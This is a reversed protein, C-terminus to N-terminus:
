HTMRPRRRWSNRRAKERSSGSPGHSANCIVTSLLMTSYMNSDKIGQLESNWLRHFPDPFVVMRVQLARQLFQQGAWNESGQDQSWTLLPRESVRRQPGVVPPIFQSLGSGTQRLQKDLAHLGKLTAVRKLKQKRASSTTKPDPADERLLADLLEQADRRWQEQDEKTKPAWGSHCLFLRSCGSSPGLGM